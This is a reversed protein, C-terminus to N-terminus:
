IAIKTGQHFIMRWKGDVNRWVSSRLSRFKSSDKPDLKSTIYTVLFVDEALEKVKFDEVEIELDVEEKGLDRLTMEKDYVLGSSGFEVFDDALLEAVIEANNRVEKKHLETELGYFLKHKDDM